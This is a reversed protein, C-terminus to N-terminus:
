LIKLIDRKIERKDQECQITKLHKILYQGFEEDTADELNRSEWPSGRLCDDEKNDNCVSEDFCEFFTPIDRDEEQEQPEQFIDNYEPDRDKFDDETIVFECESHEFCDSRFMNKQQYHRILFQLEEFQHCNNRFDTAKKCIELDHNFRDEIGNWQEIVQPAEYLFILSDSHIFYFFKSEMNMAKSINEWTEFKLVEIQQDVEVSFNFNAYLLPQEKVLNILKVNEEPTLMTFMQKKYPCAAAGKNNWMTEKEKTFLNSTVQSLKTLVIKSFTLLRIFITLVSGM